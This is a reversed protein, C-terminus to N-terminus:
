AQEGQRVLRLAVAQELCHGVRGPARPDDLVAALDSIVGHRTHPHLAQMGAADRFQVRDRIQM